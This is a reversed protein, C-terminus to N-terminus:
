RVAGAPAPPVALEPRLFLYLDGDAADLTVNAPDVEAVGSRRNVRWTPPRGAVEIAASAGAAPAYWPAYLSLASLVLRRDGDLDLWVGSIRHILRIRHRGPAWDQGTRWRQGGDDRTAESVTLPRPAPALETAVLESATPRAVRRTGSGRDLGLNVTDPLYSGIPTPRPEPGADFLLETTVLLTGDPQVAFLTYDEAEYFEYPVADRASGLDVPEPGRGACGALGVM